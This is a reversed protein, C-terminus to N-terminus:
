TDRYGPRFRNTKKPKIETKFCGINYHEFFDKSCSTLTENEGLFLVLAPTLSIGRHKKQTPISVSFSDFPLSLCKFDTLKFKLSLLYDITEADQYFLMNRGNQQWMHDTVLLKMDPTEAFPVGIKDYVQSSLFRMAADMTFGHELNKKKIKDLESRYTKYKM